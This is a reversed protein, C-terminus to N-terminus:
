LPATAPLTQSAMGPWLYTVGPVCLHRDTRQCARTRSVVVYAVCEASRDFAGADFRDTFHHYQDINHGCLSTRPEEARYAHGFGGPQWAGFGPGMQRVTRLARGSTGGTLRRRLCAFSPRVTM